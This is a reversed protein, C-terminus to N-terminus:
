PNIRNVELLGVGTGQNKGLLMVTYSGPALDLVMAAELSSTPAMGANNLETAQQANSQWNDNSVVLESFQNFLLIEPDALVGQIGFDALSPGKGILAIKVPVDGAIYLGSIMVESETGVVGRTSLNLLQTDGGSGVDYVEVLGVGESTDFGSVVVTYAGPELTAMAVSEVPSDPTYDGWDTNSAFDDNIVLVQQNQDYLTFRPDELTGTVGLADLSPGLARIMLDRSGTGDLYFGAILERGGPALFARTSLNELAASSSRDALLSFQAQMVQSAGNANSLQFYVTKLGVGSSLEIQPTPEFPMWFAGSFDSNESYRYQTPADGSYRLLVRVAGSFTEGLGDNPEVGLL